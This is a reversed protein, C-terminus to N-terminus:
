RRALTELVAAMDDPGPVRWRAASAGDGVKITVDATGDGHGDDLVEFAHEDTVDDGAYLVGGVGLARRLDLLARGKDRDLVSLEVVEKGETTRVGARTCPGSLVAATAAAATARDARRTHLVVGAPKDERSTGPHADVVAQVEGTITALLAHAADDLAVPAGETEAGHSGVLLVGEPPKAVARLDALARGSVLAVRGPRSSALAELASRTAPPITSESPVLVLPALVGDFDLAVLVDDRAAFTALAAGLGDPLTM